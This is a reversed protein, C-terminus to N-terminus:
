WRVARSAWGFLALTMMSSLTLVLALTNAMGTDGAQVADYVALPMTQTKGPINGAVMLTAGFEGLARAFALAVGALVGRSALPLTVTLFVSLPSRGLTLGVKELEPDITEFAAQASRVLLPLAVVAAAVGAGQWTFVLQIGLRDELFRGFASSRGLATLLYYGLVSPPLVLPLTAAAALVERGWFRRRALFWALPLGVVLCLGTALAAVQFSLRLATLDVSSM